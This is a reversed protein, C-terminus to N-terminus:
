GRYFDKMNITTELPVSFDKVTDAIRSNSGFLSPFYIKNIIMIKMYPNIQHIYNYKHDGWYLEANWRPSIIMNWAFLDTTWQTFDVWCDNEDQPLYYDSYAWCVSNGGNGEEGSDKCNAKSKNKPEFWMSYDCARTDIIGDYLWKNQTDTIDFNHMRWADFWRLRLMQIKYQKNKWSEQEKNLVRRFYLRKTWDHSILYLEQINNSDAIANVNGNNAGNDFIYGLEKDDEPDWVKWVDKFLAAYQGYSQRNGVEGCHQKVAKIDTRISDGISSCYYIDHYNSSDNFNSNENGYATFNECYWNRSVNRKFKEVWWNIWRKQDGFCWVMQRNYYEEYDVTYDEMLINLREFFEYWQQIAQQRAIIEKNSKIIFNYLSFMQPMILGIIIAVFILEVLTFAYKRSLLHRKAM